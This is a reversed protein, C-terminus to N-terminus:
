STRLRETRYRAQIGLRERTGNRFLHRRTAAEAAERIHQHEQPGRIDSHCLDGNHELALEVSKGARLDKMILENRLLDGRPLESQSDADAQSADM